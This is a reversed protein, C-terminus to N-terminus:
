VSRKARRVSARFAAPTTGARRRIERTMHSQDAYGASAAIDRLPRATSAIERMAFDVRARRIVDGVSVGFASRFARALHAPHVDVRDALMGLTLPAGFNSAIYNRTEALWASTRKPGSVRALDAVTELLLGEIAILAVDDPECLEEHVRRLRAALVADRVLRSEELLSAFRPEAGILLLRAGRPGYENAHSEGAPKVILADPGCEWLVDRVRETTTGAVVFEICAYDHVHAPLAFRPAYHAETVVFGGVTMSRLPTGLTLGTM